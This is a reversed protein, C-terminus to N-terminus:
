RTRALLDWMVAVPLAPHACAARLVDREADSRALEALTEPLTERHEAIALRTAHDAGDLLRALMPGTTNWARALRHPEVPLRELVDPPTHFNAALAKGVGRGPQGALQRLVEPYSCNRALWRRVMPNRDGALVAAIGAPLRWDAAAAARVRAFRSTACQGLLVLRADEAEEVPWPRPGPNCGLWLRGGVLDRLEGVSLRQAGAEMRELSPLPRRSAADGVIAAVATRAVTEDPDATLAALTDPPTAAHLAVWRRVEPDADGALIALAPGPTHKAYMLAHRVEVAPDGALATLTEASLRGDAAAAARAEAVPSAALEEALRSDAQEVVSARITVEEDRALLDVAMAPLGDRQAIADRVVPDPDRALQVILEPSLDVLWAVSRRVEPHPDTALAAVTQAPCGEIWPVEARVRHDPAAALTAIQEPSFKGDFILQHLLYPDGTKMVVSVLAAVAEPRQDLGLSYALELRPLRGGGEVIAVLVDVPVAPNKTLGALRIQARDYDPGTLRIRRRADECCGTDIVKPQAWEGTASM